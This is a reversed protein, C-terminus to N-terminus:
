SPIVTIYTIMPGFSSTSAHNDCILEYTGLQQPTFTVTTTEGKKVKGQIQFAPIRFHHEKGHFGHIHLRIREGQHVVLTGPDFRYVEKKTSTSQIQYEVTFLHIDRVSHPSIHSQSAQAPFSLIFIASLQILVLIISINRFPLGFKNRM